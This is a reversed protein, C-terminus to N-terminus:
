RGRRTVNPRRDEFSRENQLLWERAAAIRYYIHKGLITHPPAKRLARERQCTRLSIGRQRAYEKETVYGELLNSTTQEEPRHAQSEQDAQM